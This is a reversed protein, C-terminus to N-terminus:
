ARAQLWMSVQGSDTLTGDMQAREAQAILESWRPGRPIDAAELEKAGVLVVPFLQEASLGARWEGFANLTPVKASEAGGECRAIALAWAPKWPADRTALIRASPSAGDSSLEEWQRALEATRIVAKREVTSFRLAKARAGWVDDAEGEVGLLVVWGAPGAAAPGLRGLIGQARQVLSDMPSYWPLCAELLQARALLDLARDPAGGLLCGELEARVREASVGSLSDSCRGAAELLGPAPQLALQAGFRALRLLRLGDEVFRDRPDGVTTLHGAALDELGGCPDCVEGNLPDLYMANCTFDRRRADEEPSEAFQIRDPHRADSYGSETRFTALEIEIGAVQILVIGFAKGISHTHEFLELVRDPHAASVMDVDKPARGLALDRVAGGVIWGRYGARDLTRAVTRAAEALPEALREISPDQLMSSGYCLVAASDWQPPQVVGLEGMFRLGRGELEEPYRRQLVPMMAAIVKSTQM